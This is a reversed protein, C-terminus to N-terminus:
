AVHKPKSYGYQVTKYSFSGIEILQSSLEEGEGETEKAGEPLLRTTEFEKNQVDLLAGL